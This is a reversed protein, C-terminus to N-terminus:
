RSGRTSSVSITTAYGCRPACPNTYDLGAAVVKDYNDQYQRNTLPEGGWDHTAIWDGIADKAGLLTTEHSHNEEAMGAAVAGASVGVGIQNLEAVAPDIFKQQKQLYVFVEPVYETGIIEKYTVVATQAQTVAGVAAETSALASVAATSVGARAGQPATGPTVTDNSISVAAPRTTPDSSRPVASLGAPLELRAGAEVGGISRGTAAAPERDVPHPRSIPLVEATLRPTLPMPTKPPVPESAEEQGLGLQVAAGQGLPWTARNAYGQGWASDGHGGVDPAPQGAQRMSEQDRDWDVGADAWGPYAPWGFTGVTKDADYATFAPGAKKPPKRWAPPTLRYGLGYAAGGTSAGASDANGQLKWQGNKDM